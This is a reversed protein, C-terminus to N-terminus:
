YNKLTILTIEPLAGVRANFGVTGLGINVYLYVDNNNVKEKYLGIWRKSVLSIPSYQVKESFFGFQMGHTHGSLTLDIYINSDLINQWHSPDHTLLIKFDNENTGEMAKKIDGKTTFRKQYSWNEVGVIAISDNPNSNKIYYNENKLLKWGARNYISFLEQMNQEKMEETEWNIYEGYDHNGLISFVGQKSKIKSMLFVFEEAERSVFSVLDGTFLVVDPELDNIINVVKEFDKQGKWSVFHIDSIQVIKFNDFSKPLRMSKIEIKNIKFNYIDFISGYLFLLFMSLSVIIGIFEIYKSRKPLGTSFKGSIFIKNFVWRFSRWIDAILIFISLAFKCIFAIMIISSIFMSTTNIYSTYGNITVKIMVYILLFSPLWFIFYIVIRIYKKIRHFWRELSHWVYWDALFLTSFLFLRTINKPFFRLVVSIAIIAGVILILYFIKKQKISLM